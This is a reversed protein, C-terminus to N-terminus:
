GGGNGRKRYGLPTCGFNRRFVTVFSSVSEYGSKAAVAMVPLETELLLQTAKRMRIHAVIDLPTRDHIKRVRRLLTSVSMSMKAAMEPLTWPLEPRRAVEEWLSDLRRSEASVVEAAGALERLERHLYRWILEAYLEAIGSDESIAREVLPLGFEQMSKHFQPADVYYYPAKSDERDPYFSGIETVFGKMAQELLDASRFNGTIQEKVSRLFKWVPTEVLHFWFIKWPEKSEPYYDHELGAPILTVTGPRTRTERGDGTRFVAGGALTFIVVHFDARRTIRAGEGVESIGSMFVGYSRLKIAAPHSLYLPLFLRHSNLPIGKHIMEWHIQSEPAFQQDMM